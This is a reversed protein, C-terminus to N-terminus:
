EQVTTKAAASKSATTKRAPKSEADKGTEPAPGTADDTGHAPTHEDPAPQEPEPAQVSAFGADPIELLQAALMDDVEVVDKDTKWVTGGPASGPLLKTKRLWAM